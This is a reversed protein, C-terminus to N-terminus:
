WQGTGIVAAVQDIINYRNRNGQGGGSNDPPVKLLIEQSQSPFLQIENNSVAVGNRLISAMIRCNSSSDSALSAVVHYVTSPRVVKSAVISYKVSLDSGTSSFELDQTIGGHILRVFTSSLFRIRL